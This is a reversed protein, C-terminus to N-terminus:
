RGDSDNGGHGRNNEAGLSSKNELKEVIQNLIPALKSVERGILAMNEDLTCLREELRKLDRTSYLLENQSHHKMASVLPKRKPNNNSENNNSNNITNSTAWDASNQTQTVFKTRRKEQFSTLSNASAIQRRRAVANIADSSYAPPTTNNSNSSQKTM